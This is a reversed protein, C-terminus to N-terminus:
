VCERERERVREKESETEREIEEGGANHIDGLEIM